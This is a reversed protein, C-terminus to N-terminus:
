ADQSPEGAARLASDLRSMAAAIHKEVMSASIGMHQAVALYTLGDFRHLVFAERCRPPLGQIEALAIELRQKGALIREPDASADRDHNFNDQAFGARDLLSRERARARQRDVFLNRAVRFLFAAPAQVAQPQDMRLMRVCADQAIDDGELTFQAGM